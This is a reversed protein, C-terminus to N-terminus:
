PRKPPEGATTTKYRKAAWFCGWILFASWGFGIFVAWLPADKFGGTLLNLTGIMLGGAYIWGLRRLSSAARVQNRRIEQPNTTVPPLKRIVLTIGIIFALFVFLPLRYHGTSVLWINLLVCALSGGLM